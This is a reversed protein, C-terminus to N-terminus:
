GAPAPAGAQVAQRKPVDFKTGTMLMDIIEGDSSFPLTIAELFWQENNAIVRERLKVVPARNVITELFHERIFAQYTPHPLDDLCKGTLDIGLRGSSASGHIRYIFRVPNYFVDTISINGLVYKLDLPDFDTRTPYARAGRWRTWDQYLRQL